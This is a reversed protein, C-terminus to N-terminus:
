QQPKAVMATDGTTPGSQEIALALQQALCRYGLDNLHLGDATLMTGLAGPASEALARMIEYRPFLPVRQTRAIAYMRQLFAERQPAVVIRPAYQPPVLVVEYGSAKLTALGRELTAAFEELDVGRMADNAGTQWIVLHPAHAIVDREFRGFMQQATEGGVGMNFVQISQDPHRRKLDAELQAPYSRAPESSGFGQTSSSGIAVVVLPAHQALRTQTLPLAGNMLLARVSTRCQRDGDDAAFASGTLVLSALIVAAVRMM